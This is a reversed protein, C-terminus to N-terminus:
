VLGYKECYSRGEQTLRVSYFRVSKEGAGVETIFGQEELFRFKQVRIASDIDLGLSKIHEPGSIQLTQDHREGGVKYIVVLIKELDPHLRIM